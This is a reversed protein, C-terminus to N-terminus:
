ADDAEKVGSASKDLKSSNGIFHCNSNNYTNARCAM